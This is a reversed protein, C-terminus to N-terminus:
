LLDQLSLYEPQILPAYGVEPSPFLFTATEFGGALARAVAMGVGRLAGLTVGAVQGEEKATREMALPLEAWSTLLNGVGRGLKRVPGGQYLIVASEDYAHAAPVFGCVTVVVMTVVLAMWVHRM